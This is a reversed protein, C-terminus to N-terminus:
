MHLAIFAAYSQVHLKTYTSEYERVDQSKFLVSLGKKPFM